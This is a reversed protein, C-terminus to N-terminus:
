RPRRAALPLLYVLFGTSLLMLAPRLGLLDTLASGVM